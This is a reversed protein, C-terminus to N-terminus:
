SQGTIAHVIENPTMSRKKLLEGSVSYFLVGAPATMNAGYVDVQWEHGDPLLVVDVNVADGVTSLLYRLAINEIKGQGIRAPTIRIGNDEM